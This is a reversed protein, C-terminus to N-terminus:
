DPIQPFEAIVREIELKKEALLRSIDKLVGDPINRDGSLWQRIRRGDSLGLERGLETQWREGYLAHGALKLAAKKDDELTM